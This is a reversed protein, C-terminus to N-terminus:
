KLLGRLKEYKEIDCLAYVKKNKKTEAIIGNIPKPFDNHRQSWNVVVNRNVRWRDALSQVTQLPFMKQNLKENLKENLYNTM